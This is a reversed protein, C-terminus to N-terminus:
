LRKRFVPIESLAVSPVSHFGLPLRCSLTTLATFFSSVEGQSTGWLLETLPIGNKVEQDILANVNETAWKIGSKDEQSEPSLGIIDFWSHMAMSMNLIVPMKPAPTNSIHVESVQLPKQEDMGLM